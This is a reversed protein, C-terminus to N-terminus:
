LEKAKEGLKKEISALIERFAEGMKDPKKGNASAAVDHGGASGDITKEIGSFVQALNIKEKLKWNMGFTWGWNNVGMQPEHTRGNSYHTLGYGAIVGIRPALEMELHLNFDFYLNVHSAIVDNFPNTEFDHTLATYSLGISLDSALTFRGFRLWPGTYYGFLSFPNGIVTDSPDKVLDSYHMGFGYKPYKHYQQWPINGILQYGFRAEFAKYPLSFQEKLYETRSWFAGTHFNLQIYPYRQKKENVSKEQALGPLIFCLLIISHITKSM